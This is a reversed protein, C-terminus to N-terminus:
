LIAPPGRQSFLYFDIQSFHFSHTSFLISVVLVLFFILGTVFTVIKINSQHDLVQLELNTHTHSTSSKGEQPLAHSHVVIRGNPLVHLHAYFYVIFLFAM